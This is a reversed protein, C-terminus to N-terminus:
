NISHPSRKHVYSESFNQFICRDIDYDDNEYSSYLMCDRESLTGLVVSM